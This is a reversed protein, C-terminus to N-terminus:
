PTGKSPTAIIELFALAGELVTITAWCFAVSAVGFLAAAAAIVRPSTLRGLVTM